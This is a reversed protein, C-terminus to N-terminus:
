GTRASRCCITRTERSRTCGARRASPGPPPRSAGAPRERRRRDRDPLLHRLGVPLRQRRLERRRARRPGGAVHRGPGRRHDRGRDRHPRPRPRAHCPWTPSPPSGGGATALRPRPQRDPLHRATGPTGPIVKGTSTSALAAHSADQCDHVEARAATSRSAQHHAAVVYGWATEGRARYGAMQALVNRLYPQAAYPALIAQARSPAAAEAAKPRRSTPPTPPSSRREPRDRMRRRRRQPRPTCGLHQAGAAPRHGPRRLRGAAGRRRDRGRRARHDHGPHHQRKDQAPRPFRAPRFRAAPRSANARMARSVEQHGPFERPDTGYASRKRPWARHALLERIRYTLRKGRSRAQRATAAARTSARAGPQRNRHRGGSARIGARRARRPSERPAAAHPQGRRARSAARSCALAERLHEGAAELSGQANRLRCARLGSSGWALYGAAAAMAHVAGM